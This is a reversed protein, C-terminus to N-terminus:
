FSNVGEFVQTNDQVRLQRPRRMNVIDAGFGSFEETKNEAIKVKM